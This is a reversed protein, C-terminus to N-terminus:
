IIDGYNVLAKEIDSYSVRQYGLTPFFTFWNDRKQLINWFVDISYLQSNDTEILYKLAEQFNEILIKFYRRNVLYAATTKGEILRFINEKFNNIKRINTALLIIDWDKFEKIKLLSSEIYDKNRKFTFDDELILINELNNEIAYELCKIHSLACGIYGKENYIANFRIIKDLPINAWKLENEIEIRRDLRKELNIYIVKDIFNFYNNDLQGNDINKIPKVLRDSIRGEYYGQKIWHVQLEAESKDSLDLNNHKYIFTKFYPSFHEILHKRYEYQGKEVLHRVYDEPKEFVLDPNLAQYVQWYFM